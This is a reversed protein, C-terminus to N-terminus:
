RSLDILQGTAYQEFVIKGPNGYYYVNGRGSSYVKLTDAVSVWADGISSHRITAQRARLDGAKLSGSGCLKVELEDCKGSLRYNGTNTSWNELYLYGAEVQLDTKSLENAVIVKLNPTHITDRSSLSAPEELRFYNLRRFHFDLQPREEGPYWHNTKDEYVNVQWDRGKPRTFDIRDMQAPLGSIVVKNTTDPVLTIDFLGFTWVSHYPELSIERERIPENKQFIGTPECGICYLSVTILCIHILIVPLGLLSRKVRHKPALWKGSIVWGSNLLNQM